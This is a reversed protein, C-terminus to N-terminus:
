AEGVNGQDAAVAMEFLTIWSAPDEKLVSKLKKFDAASKATIRFYNKAFEEFEEVTQAGASEAQLEKLEERKDESLRLVPLFTLITDDELDVTFPEYNKEVAANLDSLTISSM